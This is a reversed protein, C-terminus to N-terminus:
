IAIFLTHTIECEFYKKFVDLICEEDDVVLINLNEDM